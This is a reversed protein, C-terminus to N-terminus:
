QRSLDKQITAEVTLTFDIFGQFVLKSEFTLQLFLLFARLDNM